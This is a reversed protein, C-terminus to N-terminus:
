VIKDNASGARLALKNTTRAAFHQAVASAMGTIGAALVAQVLPAEADNADPIERGTVSKWTTEVLKSVIFSALLTAAM